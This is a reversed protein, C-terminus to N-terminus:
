RGRGLEVLWAIFAAGLVAFLLGTSPDFLLNGVIGGLISGGIGVAITALLSMPNPGPVILRGVAGVILGTVLLGLIYLVM